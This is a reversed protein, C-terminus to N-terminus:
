GPVYASAQDTLLATQRLAPFQSASLWTLDAYGVQQNNGKETQNTTVSVPTVLVTWKKPPRRDYSM